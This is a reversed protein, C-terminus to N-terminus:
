NADTRTALTKRMGDLVAAMVHQLALLVDGGDDYAGVLINQLELDESAQVKDAVVAVARDGPINSEFIRIRLAYM